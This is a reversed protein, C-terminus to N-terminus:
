INISTENQTKNINELIELQRNLIQIRLQLNSIMAGILKEDALQVEFVRKLEAYMDDLETLDNSFSAVLESDYALIENRKEEILSTYFAEAQSFDQHYENVIQTEEEATFRDVTLAMTSVLFIVAAVKWWTNTGVSTNQDLDSEIREWLNEASHKDEFKERNSQVFDELQDGM